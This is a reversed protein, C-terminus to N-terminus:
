RGRITSTEASAHAGTTDPVLSVKVVVERLDGAKIQEERDTVTKKKQPELLTRKGGHQRRAGM